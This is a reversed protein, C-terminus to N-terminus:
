QLSTQITVSSLQRYHPRNDAMVDQRSSELRHCFNMPQPSPPPPQQTPVPCHLPDDIAVVESTNDLHQGHRPPRQGHEGHEYEVMHQM